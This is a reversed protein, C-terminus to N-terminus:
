VKIPLDDPGVIKKLKITRLSENVVETRIKRRFSCHEKDEWYKRKFKVPKYIGLYSTQIFLGDM